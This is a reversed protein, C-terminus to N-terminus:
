TARCLQGGEVQPENSRTLRPAHNEAYRRAVVPGLCSRACRRCHLLGSSDRGHAILGVTPMVEVDVETMAKQMASPHQHHRRVEGSAVERYRRAAPFVWQWGWEAPATPLKRALAGPLVVRGAGEALDAEHLAKVEELHAALPQRVMDPLVTVRDKAGKGRRLLIEGREFDVDEVRLTM